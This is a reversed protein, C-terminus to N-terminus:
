PLKNFLAIIKKIGFCGVALFLPMLAMIFRSHYDDCQLTIAFAYFFIASIVFVKFPLVAKRIFEGVGALFLGYIFTMSIVLLINHATSYYERTLNFFAYLRRASLIFYHRPNHIVYYFLQYVPDGKQALDLHTIFRSDPMDCIINGNINSVMANWDVSGAFARNLFSYMVVVGAICIVISLLLYKRPLLLLLFLGFSPIFLMGFPRSTILLIFSIALFFFTKLRSRTDATSNYICSLFFIICSFFISETYLYVNWSQYPLFLILILTAILSAKKNESVNICLRFFVIMSVLSILTQMVAAGAYGFGAKLNFAILLPTLAYFLYKKEPFEGTELFYKGASTYKSAELTTVVGFHYFLYVHIALWILILATIEKRYQRLFLIM